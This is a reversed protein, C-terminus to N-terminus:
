EHTLKSITKLLSEAEDESSAPIVLHLGKSSLQEMLPELEKTDPLNLLLGKGAGQIKKLEDIYNLASPQGVVSTWQIAKLNEITLIQDLHRIQEMGDLHYLPYELKSGQHDLEPKAYKTFLEPSIMTSIDCQLQAHLGPAWTFLWGIGSGGRNTNKIINFTEETYKDWVRRMKTMAPEIYAENTFMDMLLTDAGQILSLADLDGTVDAMSVFYEDNTNDVFYQALELTKQYWFNSEEFILSPEREETPHFWLTNQTFEHKVDKFYGAQGSPGLSLMVTPIGDGVWTRNDLMHKNRNLVFEADTYWHLAADQDEPQIMMTYDFNANKCPGLITTLCRDIVENEWFAAHRELRKDWDSIYAM